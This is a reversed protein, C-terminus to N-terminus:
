EDGEKPESKPKQADKITNCRKCSLFLNSLENSGGKSLPIFHDVTAKTPDNPHVHLSVKCKCYSCIMPGTYFSWFKERGIKHLKNTLKGKAM